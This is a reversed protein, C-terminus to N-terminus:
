RCGAGTASFGIEATVNASMVPQQSINHGSRFADFPREGLARSLM